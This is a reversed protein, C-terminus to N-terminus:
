RMSLATSSTRAQLLVSMAQPWCPVCRSPPLPLDSPQREWPGQCTGERGRGLGKGLAPTKLWLILAWVQPVARGPASMPRVACSSGRWQGGDLDSPAAAVRVWRPLRPAPEFRRRSGAARGGDRANGRCSARKWPRPGGRRWEGARMQEDDRGQRGRMAGDREEQEWTKERRGKPPRKQGRARAGAAIGERSWSM